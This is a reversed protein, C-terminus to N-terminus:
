GEFAASTVFGRGAKLTLLLRADAAAAGDGETAFTVWVEATGDEFSALVRSGDASFTMSVIMGRGDDRRVSPTSLAHLRRGSSTCWITAADRPDRTGVLAREGDPSFAVALVACFSQSTRLTHLCEASEACWIKATHDCSGTLIRRGDPSSAISSVADGHGALTTTTTTTTSADLQLQLQRRRWRPQTNEGAHKGCRWIKATRDWSCTLARLGDPSFAVGYVPGVHGTLTRLCDGSEACWLKATHDNSGTLARSGDPSSAISTVVDLHGALTQLCRGTETCWIKGTCDWSGTFVRDGDSSFAISSLCLRHGELTLTNDGSEACWIKATGNSLGTACALRYPLKVLNLHHHAEGGIVQEDSSVDTGLALKLSRTPVELLEALMRRADGITLGPELAAVEQGDLAFVSISM